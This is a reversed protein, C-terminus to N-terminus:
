LGEKDKVDFDKLEWGPHSLSSAWTLQRLAHPFVLHDDEKIASDISGLLFSKLIYKGKPTNWNIDISM